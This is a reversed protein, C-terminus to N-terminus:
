HFAASSGATGLGHNLVGSIVRPSSGSSMGENGYSQECGWALESLVAQPWPMVRAPGIDRAQRGQWNWAIEQGPSWPWGSEM